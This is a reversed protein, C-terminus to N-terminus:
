RDWSFSSFKDDFDRNGLDIIILALDFSKRTRGLLVDTESKVIYFAVPSRGFALLHSKLLVANSVLSTYLTLYFYSYAKFLYEM